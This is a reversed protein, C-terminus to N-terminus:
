PSNGVFSVRPGLEPLHSQASEGLSKKRLSPLEVNGKKCSGAMFIPVETPM